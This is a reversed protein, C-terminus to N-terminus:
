HDVTGEGSAHLGVKFIDVSIRRNGVAAHHEERKEHHCLGSARACDQLHKGVTQHGGEEEGDHAEEIFYGQNELLIRLANRITEDDEIILLKDM